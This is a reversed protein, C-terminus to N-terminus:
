RGPYCLEAPESRDPCVLAAQHAVFVQKAGPRHLAFSVRLTKPSTPKPAIAAAPASQTRPAPTQSQRSEGKSPIPDPWLAALPTLPKSPVTAPAPPHGAPAQTKLAAAETAAAKSLREQQQDLDEQDVPYARDPQKPAPKHDLPKRLKNAINKAM